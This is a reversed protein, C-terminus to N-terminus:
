VRHVAVRIQGNLVEVGAAPTDTRRKKSLNQGARDIFNVAGISRCRPRWIAHGPQSWRAGSLRLKFDAPDIATQVPIRTRLGHKRGVHRKPNWLRCAQAQKSEAAHRQQRTTAASDFRRLKTVYNTKSFAGSRSM